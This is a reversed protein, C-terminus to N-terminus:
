SVKNISSRKKKFNYLCFFILIIILNILWLTKISYRLNKYNSFTGCVMTNLFHGYLLFISCWIISTYQLVAEKHKIRLYILLLFIGPFLIKWWVDAAFEYIKIAITNRMGIQQKASEFAALDFPSLVKIVSRLGGKRGKPHTFYGIHTNKFLSFGKKVALSACGYYFRPRTLCFLVFNKNDTAYKGYLPNQENRTHYPSNRVKIKGPREEQTCLYNVKNNACYKEILIDLQGAEYMRLAMFYYGSHIDIGEVKEKQSATKNPAYKYYYNLINKQFFNSGLFLVGILLTRKLLMARNMEKSYLFNKALITATFIPLILLHTQHISIGLFLICSLIFTEIKSLSKELFLIIIFFCIPTFIDTMFLTSIWPLTTFLLLTSILLYQFNNFDKLINKTFLYLVIALILNQALPIMQLTGFVKHLVMVFISYTNSWHSSEEIILARQIYGITDGFLLPFGNYIHMSSLILLGLCIVLFASLNDTIKVKIDKDLIIRKV